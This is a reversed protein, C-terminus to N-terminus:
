DGLHLGELKRALARTAALNLGILDPLFITRGDGLGVRDRFDEAYPGIHLKMEPDDKYRWLGVELDTLAHLADDDDIVGEIDKLKRSSAIALGAAATGGAQLGGGVLSATALRKQATAASKGAQLGATTGFFEGATTSGGYTELALQHPLTALRLRNEFSKLRLENQFQLRADARQQQFQSAAQALQAEQLPRQLLQELGRTRVDSV